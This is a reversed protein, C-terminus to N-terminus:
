GNHGPVRGQDSGHSCRRLAGSAEQLVEASAPSLKVSPLALSEHPSPASFHTQDVILGLPHPSSVWNLHSLRVQSISQRSGLKWVM